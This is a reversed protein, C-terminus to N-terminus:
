AVEEVLKKSEYDLSTRRWQRQALYYESFLAWSFGLVLSIGFAMKAMQRRNPSFRFLPVVPENLIQFAPEQKSTEIKTAEYLQTLLFYNNELVQQQVTMYKVYVSQPVAPVFQSESEQSLSDKKQLVDFHAKFEEYDKFDRVGEKTYVAVPVNLAGLVPSVPNPGINLGRAMFKGMELMEQKNKALQKELFLLQRKAQTLANNTIFNQLEVLYQRVLQTAFQPDEAVASIIMKSRLLRDNDITVMSGLRSSALSLKQEETLDLKARDDRPFFKTLLDLGKVVQIKLTESELYIRFVNVIDMPGGRGGIFSFASLLDSEKSAGGSAIPMIIAEARYLPPMFYSYIITGLTVSCVVVTIALKRKWFVRFYDTLRIQKSMGETTNSRGM